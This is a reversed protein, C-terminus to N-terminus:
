NVGRETIFRDRLNVKRQIPGHRTTSIIEGDKHVIKGIPDHHMCFFSTLVRVELILFISGLYEWGRPSFISKSRNDPFSLSTSSM